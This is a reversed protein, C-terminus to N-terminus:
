PGRVRKVTVGMVLLKVMGLNQGYWSKAGGGVLGPALYKAGRGGEGAKSLIYRRPIQLFQRHQDQVEQIRKEENKSPLGGNHDM